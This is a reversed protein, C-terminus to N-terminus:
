RTPFRRGVFGTRGRARARSRSAFDGRVPLFSRWALSSSDTPFLAPCSATSKLRNIVWDVLHRVIIFEAVLRRINARAAGPLWSLRHSQFTESLTSQHGSRREQLLGVRHSMISKFLPNQLSRRRISRGHFSCMGRSSEIRRTLRRLLVHKTRGSVCAVGRSSSDTRYVLVPNSARGNQVLARGSTSWRMPRCVGQYRERRLIRRRRRQSRFLWERRKLM